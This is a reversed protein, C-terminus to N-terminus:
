KQFLLLIQLQGRSCIIPPAKLTLTIGYPCWVKNRLERKKKKILYLKGEGKNRSSVRWFLRKLVFNKETAVKLENLLEYTQEM